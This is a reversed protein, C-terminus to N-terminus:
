KASPRLGLVVSLVSNHGLCKVEQKLVTETIVLGTETIVWINAPCWVSQKTSCYLRQGM